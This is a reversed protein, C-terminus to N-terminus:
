ILCIIFLFHRALREALVLLAVPLFYKL